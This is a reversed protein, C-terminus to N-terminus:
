SHDCAIQSGNCFLSASIASVSFVRICLFMLVSLCIMKREFFFLFYAFNSMLFFVSLLDSKLSPNCRLYPHSGGFMGVYMGM